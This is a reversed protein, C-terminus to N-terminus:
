IHRPRSKRLWSFSIAIILNRGFKKLSFEELSCIFVGVSTLCCAIILENSLPEKGFMVLVVMALIRAIYTLSGLLYVNGFKVGYDWLQYAIGLGFVGTVVSFLGEQATPVVFQEFGCHLIFSILAGAGCYLGIMETPVHSFHRSFASYGAWFCAGLIALLYGWLYQLNMNQFSCEKGILCYIGLAGVLAGVIHHVMFREKPLFGTFLIVLCPWLYDILDVHAIPAFQAGYIYAFDSACIGVIGALWVVWSQKLVTGWLRKKTIRISTFLFASMFIITLVEFIPLSNVESILLPEVTWLTLAGCGLRTSRRYNLIHL